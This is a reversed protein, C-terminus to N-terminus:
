QPRQRLRCTVSWTPPTPSLHRVKSRLGHRVMDDTADTGPSDPVAAIAALRRGLM